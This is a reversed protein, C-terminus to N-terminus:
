SKIKDILYRTTALMLNRAFVGEEKLARTGYNKGFSSLLSHTQDLFDKLEKILHM